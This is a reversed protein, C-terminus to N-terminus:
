AIRSRPANASERKYFEIKEIIEEASEDFFAPISADSHNVAGALRRIPNTSRLGPRLRLHVSSLMPILLFRAKVIRASEIDGWAYLRPPGIAYKIELGREDIRLYMTNGVAAILILVALASAAFLLKSQLTLHHWPGPNLWYSVAVILLFLLVPTLLRTPQFHSTMTKKSSLAPLPM